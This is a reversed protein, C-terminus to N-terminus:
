QFESSLLSQRLAGSSRLSQVFFTSADAVRLSAARLTRILDFRPRAARHLDALRHRREGARSVAGQCNACAFWRCDAQGGACCKCDGRKAESRAGPRASVLWPTRNGPSPPGSSCRRERRCRRACARWVALAMGWRRSRSCRSNGAGSASRAAHRPTFASEPYAQASSTCRQTESV